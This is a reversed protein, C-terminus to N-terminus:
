RCGCLYGRTESSVPPLGVAHRKKGMAVWGNPLGKVGKQQKPTSNLMLFTFADRIKRKLDTSVQGTHAIEHEVYYAMADAVRPKIMAMSARERRALTPSVVARMAARPLEGTTAIRRCLQFLRDERASTQKKMGLPYDMGSIPTLIAGTTAPTTGHTFHSTGLIRQGGGPFRKRKTGFAVEYAMYETSCRWRNGGLPVTPSVTSM